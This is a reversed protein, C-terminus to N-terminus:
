WSNLEFEYRPVSSRSVETEKVSDILSHSHFTLAIIWFSENKPAQDIKTSSCNFLDSEVDLKDMLIKVIIAIIQCDTFQMSHDRQLADWQMNLLVRPAFLAAKYVLHPSYSPPPPPRPTGMTWSTGLSPCNLIGGWAFGAGIAPLSAHVQM